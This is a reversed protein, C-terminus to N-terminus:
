EGPYWGIGNSDKILDTVHAKSLLLSIIYLMWYRILPCGRFTVYYVYKAVIMPFLYILLNYCIMSWKRLFILSLVFYKLLRLIAFSFLYYKHLYEINTFAFNSRSHSRPRRREEDRQRRRRRRRALGHGPRSFLVAEQVQRGCCAASGGGCINYNKFLPNRYMPRRWPPEFFQLPVPLFWNAPLHM